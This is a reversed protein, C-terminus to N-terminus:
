SLFEVTKHGCFLCHLICPSNFTHASYLRRVEWTVICEHSHPLTPTLPHLVTHLSSHSTYYTDMHEKQVKWLHGFTSWAAISSCCVCSDDLTLPHTFEMSLPPSPLPAQHTPVYIPSTYQTSTTLSPLTLRWSNTCMCILQNYM